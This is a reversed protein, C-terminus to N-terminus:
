QYHIDNVNYKIMKILDLSLIKINKSSRFHVKPAIMFVDFM